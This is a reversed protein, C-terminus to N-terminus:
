CRSENSLHKHSMGTLLSKRKWHLMKQRQRTEWSERRLVHLSETCVGMELNGNDGGHINM